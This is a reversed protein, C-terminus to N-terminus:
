DLDTIAVTVHWNRSQLADVSWPGWGRSITKNVVFYRDVQPLDDVTFDFQCPILGPPDSQTRTPTGNVGLLREGRKGGRVEWRDGMERCDGGAQVTVTMSYPPSQPETSSAPTKSPPAENGENPCATLGLMTGLLFVLLATQSIRAQM